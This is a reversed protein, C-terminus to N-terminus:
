KLQRKCNNLMNYLLDNKIIPLNYKLVQMKYYVHLNHLLEQKVVVALIVIIMMIVKVIMMKVIKMKNVKNAVARQKKMKRIKM